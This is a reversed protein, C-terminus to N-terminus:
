QGRELSAILRNTVNPYCCDAFINKLSWSTLIEYNNIIKFPKLIEILETDNKSAVHDILGRRGNTIHAVNYLYCQPDICKVKFGFSNM